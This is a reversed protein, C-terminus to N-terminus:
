QSDDNGIREVLVSDATLIIAFASVSWAVIRISRWDGFISLLTSFDQTGSLELMLLFFLGSIVIVVVAISMVVPIFSSYFCSAIAFAVGMLILVGFMSGAFYPYVIATSVISFVGVALRYSTLVQDWSAM